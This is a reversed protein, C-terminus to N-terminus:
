GEAEIVASLLDLLAEAAARQCRPTLHGGDYTNHPALTEVILGGANFGALNGDPQTAEIRALDFVPETAKFEARVSENYRHRAVAAERQTPRGVLRNAGSRFVNEVTTLPITTHVVTVDPHEFQITDVTDRYAEFMRSVDASSNIDGFCYKLLVVARQARTPSELLRLVAANKSAYDRSQGALFHVFAPSTVAAPERTQIVRLPLAHEQVLGEVGAVVSTGVSQHGFYM